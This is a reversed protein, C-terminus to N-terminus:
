LLLILAMILVGYGLFLYCGLTSALMQCFMSVYVYTESGPMKMSKIAQNVMVAPIGDFFTYRFTGVLM